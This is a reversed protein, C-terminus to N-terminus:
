SAQWLGPFVTLIKYLQKTLDLLLIVSLDGKCGNELHSVLIKSHAWKPPLPSMWTPLFSLIYKFELKIKITNEINKEREKPVLFIILRQYLLLKSVKSDFAFSYATLDAFSIVLKM